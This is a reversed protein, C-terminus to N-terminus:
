DSGKGFRYRGRALVSQLLSDYQPDTIGNTRMKRHNKNTSKENTILISDIKELENIRKILEANRNALIENQERLIDLQDKVPPPSSNDGGCGRFVFFLVLLISIAGLAMMWKNSKEIKFYNPM